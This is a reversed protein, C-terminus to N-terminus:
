KFWGEKIQKCEKEIVVPVQTEIIKYAQPLVMYRQQIYAGGIFFIALLAVIVMFSKDEKQM